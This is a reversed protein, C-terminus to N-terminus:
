PLQSKLLTSCAALGSREPCNPMAIRTEIEQIAASILGTARSDPDKDLLDILYARAGDIEPEDEFGRRTHDVLWNNLRAEVQQIEEINM